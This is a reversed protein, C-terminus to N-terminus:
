MYPFVLQLLLLSVRESDVTIDRLNRQIQQFDRRKPTVSVSLQFALKALARLASCAVVVVVTMIGVGRIRIIENECWYFTTAM